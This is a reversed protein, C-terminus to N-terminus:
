RSVRDYVDGTAAVLNGVPLTVGLQRAFLALPMLLIGLVLAIQYAALAGARYLPELM